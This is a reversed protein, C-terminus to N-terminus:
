EQEEGKLNHQTNEIMRNLLNFAQEEEDYTFGELLIETWRQFISHFEPLLSETKKTTYIKYSRRDEGHQERKVFGNKELSKILSSTSGKDLYFHNSIDHQTSGNHHIVYMLVPMQGHGLGYPELKKHFYVKSQRYLISILRGISKNEGMM